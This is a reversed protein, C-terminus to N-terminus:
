STDEIAVMVQRIASVQANSYPQRPSPVGRFASKSFPSATCQAATKRSNRSTCIMRHLMSVSEVVSRRQDTACTEDAARGVRELVRGRPCRRLDRDELVFTVLCTQGGPPFCRLRSRSLHSSVMEYRWSYQTRQRQIRQTWRLLLCLHGLTETVTHEAEKSRLNPSKSTECCRCSRNGGDSYKRGSTEITRRWSDWSASATNVVNAEATACSTLLSCCIRSVGVTINRRSTNQM